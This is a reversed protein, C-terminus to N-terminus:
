SNYNNVEKSEFEKLAKFIKGTSIELMEAIDRYSYGEKRLECATEMDFGKFPRGLKRGEQKARQLGAKTREIILNKEFEAIGSLFVFVMKGVSTSTDIGESFSVFDLGLDKFENLANLLHTTSRAFRDFKWVLVMEFLHNRADDMLKDLAPRSSKSGSVGEDAYIYFIELGRAECYRLLDRKQNEVTQLQTSVRLYIGVKKNLM